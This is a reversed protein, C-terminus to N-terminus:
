ANPQPLTVVIRRLLQRAIKRMATENRPGKQGSEGSDRERSAVIATICVCLVIFASVKMTKRNLFHSHFTLADYCSPNEKLVQNQGLKAETM